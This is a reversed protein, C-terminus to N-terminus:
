GNKQPILIARLYKEEEQVKDTVPEVQKLKDPRVSEPLLACLALFRPHDSFDAALSAITRETHEPKGAKNYIYCLGAYADLNGRAATHISKEFGRLADIVKGARLLARAAMSQIEPRNSLESIASEALKQARDYARMECLLREARLYAKIKAERFDVSVTLPAEQMGIIEQLSELALDARQLKERTVALSYLVDPRNPCLELAEELHQGAAAYEGRDNEVKGLGLFAHSAIEPPVGSPKLAETFWRYAEDPEHVMLYSDALEIAMVPDPADQNYEELLLRINRRSKQKVTETDAYGHHEILVKRTEMTLGARLASLMIQEHIRREFRLDTRNPFMRAQMFDSGTGGPKENRVWLAFVRDPTHTKLDLLAKVSSEPIVDDADLWLIWDSTAHELSINRAQSFDDKWTTRIVTAGQSRAITVTKDTSGTDVVVIEDAVPRASQLCRELCHEENRVIM